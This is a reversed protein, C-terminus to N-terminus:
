QQQETLQEPFQNFTERHVNQGTEVYQMLCSKELRDLEANMSHQLSNWSAFRLVTFMFTPTLLCTCHCCERAKVGFHFPKVELLCNAADVM